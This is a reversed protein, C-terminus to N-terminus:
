RGLGAQSGPAQQRSRCCRTWTPRTTHGTPGWGSRRGTRTSRRPRHRQRVDRRGRDQCGASACCASCRPWRPGTAASGQPSPLVHVVDDRRVAPGAQDGGIGHRRRPLGQRHQAQTRRVHRQRRERVPPHAPPEGLRRGRPLPRRRHQRGQQDLRDVAPRPPHLGHARGDRADDIAKIAASGSSYVGSKYGQSTCTSPGRTPSSWCSTTARRPAPTGSSTSTPTAAPPSATSRSRPSRRPAEDRAQPRATSVTTSMKQKQVRSKPNNKFCPSQYGVHIPIFRWGNAANKAVWAKSLNPQDKDGCYRSNGSVYIGIASYPSRLNWADMVTQNPAVCADFGYGTFNGPCAAGGRPRSLVDPIDRRPRDSIGAITLRSTPSSVLRM